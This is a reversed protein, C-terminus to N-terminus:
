FVHFIGGTLGFESLQTSKASDAFLSGSVSLQYRLGWGAGMSHDAGLRIGGFLSSGDAYAAQDGARRIDATIMGMSFGAYPALRRIVLLSSGPGPPSTVTAPGLYFWKWHVGTLNAGSTMPGLSIGRSHELGFTWTHAFVKEVFFTAVAPGESREVKLVAGNVQNNQSLGVGGFGFGAGARIEGPLALADKPQATVILMVVAFIFTLLKLRRVKM